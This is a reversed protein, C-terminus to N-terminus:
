PDPVVNGETDYMEVPGYKEMVERIQNADGVAIIQLADPDLYKEAMRAVDDATVAMIQAPYRDWYDDGFEYIERITSYRLLGAPQELSLAFGAVISRKVEELEAEPVKEERIRRIEKLFETMAGDTVETRVDAYANWAGPYKLASFSSYAGYTYGKEERLNIFLRAAASGGLVDNMVTLPIYDPHKRDLVVNGMFITTQASNPRDVLLIKRAETPEPDPPLEEVLDSREWEALLENLKPVIEEATVDGAIGLIANQPAYRDRHWRAIVETTMRDLSEETQSVASAPHDGFVAQNFRERALFGASTRQQQLRVKSRQRLQELEDEPFSPHLLVDRMVEFWDDLNRSLGSATISAAASGFGSRSSLTAGLRAVEELIERKSRTATGDRLMTATVGALGVLEPPEYLPGAGSITLQMSVIPQRHDELILVTLGNDLVAEVANPLRVQLVEDSVPARNKRVIESRDPASSGEQAWAPAVSLALACLLAFACLLALNWKTSQIM